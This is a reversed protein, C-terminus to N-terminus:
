RLHGAIRKALTSVLPARVLFNGIRYSASKYIADRQRTLHLAVDRLYAAAYTAETEANCLQKGGNSERSSYEDIVEEYLSIIQDVAAELGSSARLRRSVEAADAADYRALERVVAETTVVEQLARTGFNLLRLQDLNQTTVMEAMGPSDSVIVAAGVTMAELACRAKAFVVDYKRLVSAPEDTATGTSSGVVDLMMGARHCARRVTAIYGEAVENGFILARQPKSPLPGRTTFQNLDVFNRIVRVQQEPIGQEYILRDRCTNDVAVYRLIRPFRPPAEEWALWGHCFYIAPVNAFHLLASMTEVHHQGHIIEPAVSIAALDEVVPITARRLDSAITGLKTSYAIPTHGRRLLSVAVDRVYLESGTRHALAYNTILVRM